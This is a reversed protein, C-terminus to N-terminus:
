LVWDGCQSIGLTHFSHMPCISENMFNITTVSMPLIEGDKSHCVIRLSYFTIAPKATNYATSIEDGSGVFM